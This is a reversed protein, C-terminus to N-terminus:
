RCNLVDSGFLEWFLGKMAADLEDSTERREGEPTKHVVVTFGNSLNPLRFMPIARQGPCHFPNLEIPHNIAPDELLESGSAKLLTLIHDRQYEATPEMYETSAFPLHM